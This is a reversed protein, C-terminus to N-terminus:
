QAVILNQKFGRTGSDGRTAIRLVRDVSVAGVPQELKLNPPYHISKLLPLLVAVLGQPM